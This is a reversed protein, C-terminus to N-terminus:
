RNEVCSVGEGGEPVKRLSCVQDCSKERDGGGRVKETWGEGGGGSGLVERTPLKHWLATM